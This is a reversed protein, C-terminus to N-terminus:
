RCPDDLGAVPVDESLLSRFARPSMCLMRRFERDFQSPHDFGVTYAIQSVYDCSSALQHVALMIAIMSRWEAFTKGSEVKLEHEFRDVAFGLERAVDSATPRRRHAVTRAVVDLAVLCQSRTAYRLQISLRQIAATPDQALSHSCKDEGTLVVARLLESLVAFSLIDAKAAVLARALSTASHLDPVHSSNNPPGESHTSQYAPPADSLGPRGAAVLTRVSCILDDPMLPKRKFGVVGLRGATLASEIDGFGTVVLAPVSLGAGRAASLVDLGNMDPLHLDLVVGDFRESRLLRLGEFGSTAGHVTIGELYLLHFLADGHALQDDVWLVRSSAGLSESDTAPLTLDRITSGM